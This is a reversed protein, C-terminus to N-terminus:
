PKEEGSKLMTRADDIRARIEALNVIIIGLPPVPQGITKSWEDTETSVASFAGQISRSLDVTDGQPMSGSIFPEEINFLWTDFEDRNSAKNWFHAIRAAENASIGVKCAALYYGVLIADKRIWDRNSGQKGKPIGLYGYRVIDKISQESADLAKRLELTNM